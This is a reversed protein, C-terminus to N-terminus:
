AGPKLGLKRAARYAYAKARNQAPFAGPSKPELGRDRLM